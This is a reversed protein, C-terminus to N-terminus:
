LNVNEWESFAKELTSTFLEVPQAGSVGYKNDFVFIPVSSIGLQKAEYLDMRVNEVFANEDKLPDTDLGIAHGIKEIEEFKNLDIGDTFHAKFLAEEAAEGLHKTKALQILRHALLTNAPKAIDFRFELGSKAATETIQQHVSISWDISKQKKEALHTYADKQPDPQGEPDLQFSKWEIDLHEVESFKALSEEFHRKGIYCFPCVVDSWIEIKMKLNGM